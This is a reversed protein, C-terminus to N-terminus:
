RVYKVLSLADFMPNEKFMDLLYNGENDMSIGSM